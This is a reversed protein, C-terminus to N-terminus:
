DNGLESISKKILEELSMGQLYIKSISKQAERKGFGFTCILKLAKEKLELRDQVSREDDRCGDSQQAVSIQFPSVILDESCELCNSYVPADQPIEFNRIRFYRKCSPCQLHIDVEYEIFVADPM